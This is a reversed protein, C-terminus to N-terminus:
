KVEAAEIAEKTILTIEVRERSGEKLTVKAIQKEFLKRFAPDDFVDEESCSVQVDGPALNKIEFSGDSRTATFPPSQDDTWATVIAGPVPEGKLNRVIGSITAANPALVIELIGNGAGASSLDLVGAVEQGGHRISKLYMGEPLESVNVKFDVPPLPGIRFSGDEAPEAEPTRQLFVSASILSVLLGKSVKGDIHIKGIFEIVPKLELTLDNIDQGGVEIARRAFLTATSTCIESTKQDWSSLNPDTELVYSGPEVAYFEFAGDRIRATRSGVDFPTPTKPRLHVGSPQGDGPNAIKGRVRVVSVKRLRIEVNRVESGVSIHLPTAAKEDAGNPYYTPGLVADAGKGALRGRRPAESDWAMLYYRGPKLNTFTFNGEDDAEKYDASLTHKKAGVPVSRYCVVTTQLVPDGDEDLVRGSIVGQPTLKLELYKKREGSAISIDHPKSELYGVRKVMLTCDGAELDEFLFRGDSSTLFSRQDKGSKLTVMAKALPDGTTSSIVRGELISVVRPPTVQASIAVASAFVFFALRLTM